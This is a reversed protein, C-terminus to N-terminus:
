FLCSNSGVGGKTEVQYCAWIDLKAAFVVMSLDVILHVPLINEIEFSFSSCLIYSRRCKLICTYIM